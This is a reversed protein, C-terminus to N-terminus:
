LTIEKKKKRKKLYDLILLLIILAIPIVLVPCCNRTIAFIISIATVIALIWWSGEEEKKFGKRTSYLAVVLVILALVLLWCLNELNILGGIAALFGGLGAEVGGVCEESESCEPDECDMKEDCDDDIENKCVEAISPNIGPDVDDCDGDQTVTYSDTPETLCQSDYSVGYGDGDSDKYYNTCEARAGPQGEAPPGLVACDSDAGDVLGDCDDDLQNTCNESVAQTNQVCSGWFGEQACAQTGASCIGLLGTSCSQTQGPDCEKELIFLLEDGVAEQPSTHSIPRWYYTQGPILGTIMMIHQTIKNPVEITSFAYGYNPPTGSAHPVTDYVVRSTAPLNTSWSVIASTRFVKEIKENFIILVVGGGGTSIGGGGAPIFPPGIIPCTADAGNCDEDIGNGCIETTPSNTPECGEWFGQENCTQTGAACIGPEGTQCARQEGPQCGVQICAPDDMCSGDDCDIDGNCDDDLGNDCVETAGPNVGANEDDCDNGEPCNVEDYAFYGDQDADTCGPEEEIVCNASCGDGDETNGDDCGEGNELIGNGCVPQCPVCRVSVKDLFTGLSNSTGMDAFQLSITTGTATFNYSHLTWNTNGNGAASINDRIVGDWSFELNNDASNTGPRPSFYFNISYNQGPITPINQYIKVSAPENNISGGPGDWDTDLEAYQSGDYPLWGNVGGHLELVADTPQAPDSTPSVWEVLWGLGSNSFINWKQPTNVIPTEFSGNLVLELDPNCVEVTCNASCGDGDNNNGDDCEEEGELVGNGCAPEPVEEECLCTQLNCTYSPSCCEYGAECEEGPDLIGDGCYPQPPEACSPGRITLDFHPQNGHNHNGARGAKIVAIAGTQDVEPQGTIAVTFTAGSPTWGFGDEMEWKVGYHLTSGDFGVEDAGPTASVFRQGLEQESFCPQWVWHSLDPGRCTKYVTYSWTSTNNQGDLTRGNFEVNYANDCPDCCASVQSSINFVLFGFGAVSATALILTLIKKSYYHSITKM